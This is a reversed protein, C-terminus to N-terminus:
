VYGGKTYRWLLSAGKLAPVCMKGRTELREREREWRDEGRGV